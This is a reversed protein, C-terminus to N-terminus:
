WDYRPWDDPSHMSTGRTDWPREHLWSFISNPESENRSLM